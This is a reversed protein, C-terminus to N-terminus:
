PLPPGARKHASKRIMRLVDDVVEEAVGAARAVSSPTKKLDLLGHLVLDLRDYDVPIEDIARHGPWLRPSSPKESVRKPLGLYEALARVQTKYLRGIPLFDVAGDGFKTFFGIELESRDGTGAVLLREANAVYYLVLMRARAQANARAMKTGEVPVASTLARVIPDVEVTLKRVGLISALGAADRMDTAPTSSSPMLAATVREPGLARSCLACVVSSDVGGSLGVVVGAAKARDVTKAIFATLRKAESAPDLALQGGM